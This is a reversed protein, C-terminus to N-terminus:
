FSACPYIIRLDSAIKGLRDEDWQVRALCTLLIGGFQFSADHHPPALDNAITFGRSALEKDLDRGSTGLPFANSLGDLGWLQSPKVLPACGQLGFSILITALLHASKSGFMGASRVDFLRGGRKSAETGRLLNEQWRPRVLPRM